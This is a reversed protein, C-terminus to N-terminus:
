NLISHIRFTASGTVKESNAVRYSVIFFALISKILNRTPQGNLNFYSKGSVNWNRICISTYISLNLMIIYVFKFFDLKSFDCVASSQLLLFDARSLEKCHPHHDM